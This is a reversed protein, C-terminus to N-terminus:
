GGGRSTDCLAVPFVAECGAQRLLSGIVTLTWRSDVLDDVLFVPGPAVDTVAFAGAVNRFQQTSNHLSKQPAHTSTRRVAPLFPLGLADALRRAFNAVLEGSRTSPVATVWTPPPRPSWDGIMAVVADVLEDGFNGADYKGKRVREAWGPDGSVSLCRGEACGYKRLSPWDVGPPLTLRPEIPRHGRDLFILANARVVPDISVDLIPEGRCNSCRGCRTASPDDLARGLFEMLCDDTTLYETMAAQERRRHQTVLAIRERPYTWPSASRFWERGERYVAGEVELIKLLAQLKGRALNVVGELATSTLGSRSLADLIVETSHEDPFATTIFYDQIQRDEAGALLVGLSTDVARGARGVQQYYAIPSGPTQYHIVFEIFPNDYGMGLASTAVVAKLRGHKLSEEVEMRLETDSEGTYAAVDVGQSRLWRSVREVDRVTLCYIIGSGPLRPVADALWALRDARDALNIVQLALSERELPGRQITLGAGLQAAVDDIVRDNATATTGLIPVGPPLANVVRGLRRYDPRFDHGWDSICHVEDVVLLGMSHLVAPFTQELFERNNFREPSILLLDVEGSNARASVEAWDDRNTSNITEAKVGARTAMEIQNRMLALLPSVLLTPGRGADRLLRTAILYVASKGWGTRQVVLVRGRRVVMEEIAEWQGPHFSVARGAIRHLLLEARQYTETSM